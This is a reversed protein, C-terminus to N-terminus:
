IGYRGRFANFNQRVEVAPLARNYIKVHSISGNHSGGSEAQRGIRVSQSSGSVLIGSKSTSLFLEGNVYLATTSGNFTGTLNYWQNLNVTFPLGVDGGVTTHIYWQVQTSTATYFIWRDGNNGNQHWDSLVRNNSSIASFNIWTSVTIYSPKLTSSTGVDCYDDVGDFTMYGKNNTSYGVSNALTGNNDVGSLDHWTTGSGPYSKPNAADLHLVLGNRVTDAGHGLGM